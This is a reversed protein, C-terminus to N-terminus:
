EEEMDFVLFIATTLYIARVHKHRPVQNGGEEFVHMLEQQEETNICQFAEM